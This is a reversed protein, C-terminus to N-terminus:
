KVGNWAALLSPIGLKSLESVQDDHGGESLAEAAREASMYLGLDIERGRSREGKFKLAFLETGAVVFKEIWVSGNNTWHAHHAM